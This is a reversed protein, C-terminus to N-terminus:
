NMAGRRTPGSAPKMDTWKNATVDYAWTEGSINAPNSYHGTQGGFMIVRDSETDYSM